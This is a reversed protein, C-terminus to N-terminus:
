SVLSLTAGSPQYSHAIARIHMAPFRGIPADVRTEFANPREHSPRVGRVERPYIEGDDAHREVGGHAETRARAESRRRNSVYRREQAGIVRDVCDVQEFLECHDVVAVQWDHGAVDFTR